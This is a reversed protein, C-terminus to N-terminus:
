KLLTAYIEITYLIEPTKGDCINIRKVPACTVDAETNILEFTHYDPDVTKRVADIAKPLDRYATPWAATEGETHDTEVLTYITTTAM